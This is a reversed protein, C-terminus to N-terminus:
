APKVALHDPPAPPRLRLGDCIEQARNRLTLCTRSNSKHQRFRELARGISDPNTFTSDERVGWANKGAELLDAVDNECLRSAANPPLYAVWRQGFEEVFDQLGVLITWNATTGMRKKYFASNVRNLVGRLDATESELVASLQAPRLSDFARGVAATSTLTLLRRYSNAARTLKSSAKSFLPWSHTRANQKSRGFQQGHIARKKRGAVRAIRAQAALFAAERELLDSLHSPRGEGLSRCVGVEPVSGLMKRYAATARRLDGIAMFLTKRVLEKATRRDKCFDRWEQSRLFNFVSLALERRGDDGLYYILEILGPNLENKEKVLYAFFRVGFEIFGPQKPLQLVPAVVKVKPNRRTKVM